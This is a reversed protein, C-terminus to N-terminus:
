AGLSFLTPRIKRARELLEFVADKTMTLDYYEGQFTLILKKGDQSVELNRRYDVTDIGSSIASFGEVSINMDSYNKRKSSSAWDDIREDYHEFMNRFKKDKIPSNEPVRLIKRLEKRRYGSAGKKNWLLKSINAVAVLFSQIHCFIQRNDCEVKKLLKEKIIDTLYNWHILSFVSQDIIEDVFIFVIFKDLRSEEM